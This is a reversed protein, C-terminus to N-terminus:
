CGLRKIYGDYDTKVPQYHRSFLTSSIVFDVTSKTAALVMNEISPIRLLTKIDVDHPQMSMPDTFFVRVDIINDVILGVNNIKQM